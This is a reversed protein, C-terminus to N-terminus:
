YCYGLIRIFGATTAAAASRQRTGAFDEASCVTDVYVNRLQDGSGGQNIGQTMEFGRAVGGCEGYCREVEYTAVPWGGTELPDPAHDIDPQTTDGIFPQCLGQSAYEDLEATLMPNIPLDRSLGLAQDLGSNAANYVQHYRRINHTIELDVSSIQIATLGLVTLAVLALMAIVLAFGRRERTLYRM